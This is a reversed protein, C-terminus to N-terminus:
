TKDCDNKLEEASMIFVSFLNEKQVIFGFSASIELNIRARFEVHKPCNRQGDDPTKWQLTYLPFRRIIPLSVVRFMYPKTGSYIQFNTLRKTKNYLFKNRHVTM